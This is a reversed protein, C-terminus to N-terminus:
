QSGGLIGSFIARQADTSDKRKMITVAVIDAELPLQGSTGGLTVPFTIEKGDRELTLEIVDGSKWGKAAKGIDNFTDVPAGNIAVLNDGDQYTPSKHIILDGVPTQTLSQIYLMEKRVYDIDPLAEEVHVELGAGGFYEAFPLREIGSVYKNFFPEFDEGAIDNVIRVVDDMTYTEGTAGFESYMQKMVDDLSKQNQTRERIQVDLALAILSGGQYVLGNNSGKNKGAERISLEGQQALYWECVRELNKIFDSEATFGLRASAIHSYYETFGESFWYEQEKFQIPWAHFVEHGVLPVWFRKSAEDLKGGVLVSISRGRVGGGLRGPDGYPNAVFLMRGKPTGNFVGSYTKLFAEVISQVEAANAKFRGGVAVVVETEGSKAVKESHTGLVMYAHILDNQDEITFRHGEDGIRHWPTSVYWHGPINVRLEVDNVEGIVFLAYGPLFICDEQVYPTESRGPPWQREDHNLLVKYSLIVPSANGVNVAWRTKGLKMMPLEEEDATTVRLDEIYEAYGNHVAETGFHSMSLPLIEGTDEKPTLVCKVHAMRREEAEITVEYRASALMMRISEPVTTNEDSGPQKDSNEVVECKEIIAEDRYDNQWKYTWANDVQLPFYEERKVPVDYELLEAETTTGSAHEYRMKVIGVGKAFWLYRTGNVLSSRLPSGAKAETIIIKHKLCDPFTGSAIEVAEYGEVTTQVQSEWHGGQTWTDGVALPFRFLDTNYHLMYYMLMYMPTPDDKGTGQTGFGAAVLAADTKMLYFSGSALPEGSEENTNASLTIYRDGKDAAPEEPEDAYAAAFLVQDTIPLFSDGIRLMLIAVVVSAVIIWLMLWKSMYFASPKIYVIKPMVKRTLNTFFAQRVVPKEKKLAATSPLLLERDYKGTCRFFGQEKVRQRQLTALPLLPLYVPQM